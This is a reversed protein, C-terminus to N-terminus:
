PCDMFPALRRPHGSVLLRIAFVCLALMLPVVLVILAHEAFAESRWAGNVLPVALTVCYYCALPCALRLSAGGRDLRQVLEYLLVLGAFYVMIGELRHVDDATLSALSVPHEALWMAIVIRVTNIVLAAAYSAVLSVGVVAAGTGISRARHLLAIAVMGFAAIMFNIGACAKAILFLRERSFYGEGPVASFATGTVVSVLTTTPMLMWRLQDAGADAYHRKLGWAVLVVAGIMVLKTKV